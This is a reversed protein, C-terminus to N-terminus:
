SKDKWISGLRKTQQERAAVKAINARTNENTLVKKLKKSFNEM